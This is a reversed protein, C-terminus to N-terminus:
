YLEFGSAHEEYLKDMYSEPRHRIGHLPHGVPFRRQNKSEYKAFQESAYEMIMKHEREKIIDLTLM